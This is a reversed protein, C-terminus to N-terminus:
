RRRKKAARNQAAYSQVTHKRPHYIPSPVHWSELVTSTTGKIRERRNAVAVRHQELHQDITLRARLELRRRKNFPHRLFCLVWFLWSTLLPALNQM